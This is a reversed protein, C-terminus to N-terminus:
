WDVWATDRYQTMLNEDAIYATWGDKPTYRIYGGNGDEEVVDGVAYSSWAGTPTANIIYRAGFTPNDVPAARRSAVKFYPVPGGILPPVYTDVSWGVGDSVFWKVEGYGNISGYQGSAGIDAITQSSVTKYKVGNTSNSNHRLGFRFGDGVTVASPFTALISGGTVNCNYLIGSETTGATFDASKVEIQTIPQARDTSFGTTDQAGVINDHSFVTSADAKKATMKFPGVGTYLQVRNGGSSPYGGADTTVSTGLPTALDKDAYVTRPTSTGAQFFELTGGSLPEDNDDTLRWGPKVVQISDTM